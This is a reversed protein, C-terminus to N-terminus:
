GRAAIAQTPTQRMQAFLRIANSVWDLTTAINQSFKQIDMMELQMQTSGSRTRSQALQMEKMYGQDNPNMKLLDKSARNMEENLHMIRKGKWSFLTGNQLMNSKAAAILVYEPDIRGSMVLSVIRQTEENLEATKSQMERVMQADIIKSQLESFFDNWESVAEQAIGAVDQGPGQLEEEELVEAKATMARMQHMEQRFFKQDDPTLAMEKSHIAFHREADPPPVSGENAYVQYDQVIQNQFSRWRGALYDEIDRRNIGPAKLIEYINGHRLAETVEPHELTPRIQPEHEIHSRVGDVPM